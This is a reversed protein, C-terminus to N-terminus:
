REDFDYIQNQALKYFEGSKNNILDKYRGTESIEGDKM